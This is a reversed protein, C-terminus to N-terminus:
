QVELLRLRFMCNLRGSSMEDKSIGDDQGKPAVTLGSDPPIM